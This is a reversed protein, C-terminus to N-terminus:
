NLNLIDKWFEYSYAMVCFGAWLATKDDQSLSQSNKITLVYQKIINEIETQNIGYTSVAEIFLDMIQDAETPFPTNPFGFSNRINYYGETFYDSEFIAKEEPTLILYWPRPDMGRLLMAIYTLIHNHLIGVRICDHSDIGLRTGILFDNNSIHQKSYAYAAAFYIGDVETNTSAAENDLGQSDMESSEADSLIILDNSKKQKVDHSVASGVVAGGVAMGALSSGDPIQAATKLGLEAGEFAGKSDSIIVKLRNYMTGSVTGRTASGSELKSNYDALEQVTKSMTVTKDANHEPNNEDTCGHRIDDRSFRPCVYM